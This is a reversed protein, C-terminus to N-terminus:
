GEGRKEEQKRQEAKQEEYRKREAIALETPFAEVSVENMENGKQNDLVIQM